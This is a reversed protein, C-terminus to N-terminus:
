LLRTSRPQRTRWSDTSPCFFGYKAPRNISFAAPPFWKFKPGSETKRNHPQNRIRRFRVLVLSSRALTTVLIMTFPQTPDIEHCHSTHQAHMKRPALGRFTSMSHRNALLANTLLPVQKAIRLKLKVVLNKCARPAQFRREFESWIVMISQLMWSPGKITTPQQIIISWISGLVHERKWARNRKFKTSPQLPMPDNSWSDADVMWNMPVLCDVQLRHNRELAILQGLRPFLMVLYSDGM